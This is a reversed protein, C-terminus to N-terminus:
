IDLNAVKLANDEIFERRPEVVDGMLTSFIQDAATAFAVEGGPLRVSLDRLRALARAENPDAVGRLHDQGASPHGGLVGQAHDLLGAAVADDDTAAAQTPRPEEGVQGGGERAGLHADGRGEALDRLGQALVGLLGVGVFEGGEGLVVGIALYILLTPLGSRNALRVAAVAVLLVLSGVLLVFPLDDTGFGTGAASAIM